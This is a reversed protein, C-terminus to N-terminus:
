GDGVFTLRYHELQTDSPIARLRSNGALAEEREALAKDLVHLERVRSATIRTAWPRISSYPASATNLVNSVVSVRRASSVRALTFSKRARRSEWCRPADSQIPTIRLSCHDIAAFGLGACDRSRDLASDTLSAEVRSHVDCAQQNVDVECIAHVIALVEHTPM